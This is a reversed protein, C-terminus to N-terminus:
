RWSSARAPGRWRRGSAAGPRSPRRAASSVGGLRAAVDVRKRAVIEALIGVTEAM